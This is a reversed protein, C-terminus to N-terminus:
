HMYIITTDPATSNTPDNLKAGNEFQFAPSELVIFKILNNSAETVRLKTKRFTLVSDQAIDYTLEQTFAPRAINDSEERYYVRLSTGQRGSYTLSSSFTSLIAGSIDNKRLKTMNLMEDGVNAVMVKGKEFNYTFYESNSLGCGLLSICLFMANILSKM